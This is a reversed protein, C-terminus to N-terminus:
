SGRVEQVAQSLVDAAPIRVLRSIVRSIRRCRDWEDTSLWVEEGNFHDALIENLVERWQGADKM